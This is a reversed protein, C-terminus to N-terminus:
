LTFNISYQSASSQKIIITDGLYSTFQFGCNPENHTDVFDKLVQIAVKEGALIGEIGDSRYHVGAWDRGFTCNSALKNVEGEWTVDDGTAVLTTGASNPAYSEPFIYSEDYFAKLITACAGSFCAHGAPYAPHAPSGEPFAQALLHTGQQTLIDSLVGNTLLDSHIGAPNMTTLRVQEVEGGFAEPRTRRHALWKGYWATRLSAQVASEMTVLVDNFSWTVFPVQNSLESETLYPNIPSLPVGLNNNALYAAMAFAQGPADKWVIYSLDRGTALYTLSGSITLDNSPSSGNQVSLFDSFTIMRDNASTRTPFFARADSTHPWIIIDRILLQSIFPGNLEGKGTGRFINDRTVPTHGKFDTLTNMYAVCNGIVSNTNFDAFPIDRCLVHCYDEVMEGATEASNFKPAPPISISSPTPGVINLSLAGRPQVFKRGLDLNVTALLDTDRNKLSDILKNAETSNARGQADHNICKTFTGLFMPITSEDGNNPWDSQDNTSSKCSLANRLKRQRDSDLDQYTTPTPIFCNTTISSCGDVTLNGKVLLDTRITAKGMTGSSVNLNRKDDVIRKGKIFINSFFGDNRKQGHNPM